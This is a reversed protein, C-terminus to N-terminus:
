LEKLSEGEKLTVIAKKFSTKKGKIGKFVKGKGEVNITNVSEVNVDLLSEVAKKIEPKTARQDVVFAYKGKEQHSFSKESISKKKILTWKDM